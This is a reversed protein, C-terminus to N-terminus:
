VREPVCIASLRASRRALFNTVAGTVFCMAAYVLPVAAYSPDKPHFSVMVFLASAMFCTLSIGLYALFRADNM